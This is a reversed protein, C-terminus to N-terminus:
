RLLNHKELCKFYEPMELMAENYKRPNGIEWAIRKVDKVEKVMADRWRGQELMKAMDDRFIRGELGQNGNSMTERHDPPDMQIGPGNNEELPSVKKSPMHHSDKGDKAPLRTKSHWWGFVWFVGGCTLVVGCLGEGCRVIGAFGGGCEWDEPFTNKILPFLM